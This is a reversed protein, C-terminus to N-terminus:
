DKHKFYILWPRWVVVQVNIFRGILAEASLALRDLFANSIFDQLAEEIENQRHGCFYCTVGDDIAMTDQLCRPCTVVGEDYPEMGKRYKEIQQRCIRSIGFNRRIQNLLALEIESMLDQGLEENIFNIAFNLVPVTAGKIALATDVSGFHELRNRKKKM